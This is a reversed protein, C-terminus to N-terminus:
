AASQGLVAVVWVLVHAGVVPVLTRRRLYVVTLLAAVVSTQLVSGLPWSVAHVATFVAWTLGGAVLASDTYALLRKIPYGRYVVEEVVGTTVSLAILVGLGGGGAGFANAGDRVDLGLSEVLPGTLAYVAVIAVSTALLYGLDIWAPRRFGIESLSVDEGALAIGVVVAGISVQVAMTVIPDFGGAARSSVLAFAPLAFLAIALNGVTLTPLDRLAGVAGRPHTAM